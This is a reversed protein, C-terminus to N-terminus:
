FRPIFRRRSTSRRRLCSWIPGTRSTRAAGSWNRTSTATAASMPWASRAVHEEARMVSQYEATPINKRSAEEHTLTEVIKKPKPKRRRQWREGKVGTAARRHATVSEIMKNFEDRGQSRLRGRDRYVETFEAFAWRGFKGTNNVGPVWYTEMTPKKEKADERRYGKIEVVLHLLDDEGHGDDVLVIFDPRYIRSESGYRYPVEFGLNHNKVYARVASAVRGRPLVGGGLRQRPHGLQHPLPAADTEWRDTKSTTFNVHSTSGTPNYPDLLVKIRRKDGVSEATIAATIRECAMDALERYLVAGSLHRGKCILCTDLWEKAIRKLQGFLHLKPEEGPDRWKTYLLHTTLHFLM